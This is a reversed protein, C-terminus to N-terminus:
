PQRSSRPKEKGPPEPKDIYFTVQDQAFAGLISAPDATAMLEELLQSPPQSLLRQVQRRQTPHWRFQGLPFPVATQDARAVAAQKQRQLTLAGSFIVPRSTVVAKVRTLGQRGPVPFGLEPNDSPIAVLQNADIRNDEGRTPFLISPLGAPDVQILYLYGARQSSLRVFFREGINYSGGDFRDVTADLGFSSTKDAILAVLETPSVVIPNDEISPTPQPAEPEPDRQFADNRPITM